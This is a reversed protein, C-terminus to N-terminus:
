LQTVSYSLQHYELQGDRGRLGPPPQLTFIFQRFNDSTDSELIADLDSFQRSVVGDSRRTVWFGAYSREM